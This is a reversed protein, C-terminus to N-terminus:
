CEAERASTEIEKIAKGGGPMSENAQKANSYEMFPQQIGPEGTYHEKTNRRSYIFCGIVLIIVIIIPLIIGVGIGAIRGTYKLDSICEPDVGWSWLGDERCRRAEYGVLRYGDDCSFRVITGPWYRNESKRGNLPKPLAPCRPYRRAAENALFLAYAEHQKTVKAYEKDFTMVYDYQCPISDACVSEMEPRLHEAWDPLRPPLGFEPLFNPDDYFAFPIADHHFLSAVQTVDSVSVRDQVRWAKGFRMHIDEQTSQLSIQQGTPLTFDDRADRSYLGLLGGTGNQ